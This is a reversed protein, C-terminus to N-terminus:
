RLWVHVGDPLDLADRLCVPATLEATGPRNKGRPPRMVHCRLGSVRAPTFYYDGYRSPVKIEVKDHHDFPRALDLNLSGWYPEYGLAEALMPVEHLQRCTRGPGFKVTGRIGAPAASRVLYTPRPLSTKWGPFEGVFTAGSNSVLDHLWPLIESRRTSAGEHPHPVEVVVWDAVKHLAWWAAAWDPFHHLVSLAFAVDVRELEGLDAATVKGVRWDVRPHKRGAGKAEIALVRTGFEDALRVSLEGESAGLDLASTPQLPLAELINKWREDIRREAQYAKRTKRTRRSPVPSAPPPPHSARSAASALRRRLVNRLKGM